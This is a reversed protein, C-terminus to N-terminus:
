QRAADPSAGMPPPAGAPWEEATTPQQSEHFAYGAMAGGVTGLVVFTPVLAVTAGGFVLAGTQGTAFPSGLSAVFLGTVAAGAALGGIITGGAAGVGVPITVTDDEAAACTGAALGAALPMLILAGLGGVVLSLGSSAGACAGGVALLSCCTVISALGGVAGALATDGLTLEDQPPLPAVPRTNPERVVPPPLPTSATPAPVELAPDPTAAPDEVGPTLMPPPAMPDQQLLSSVSLSLLLVSWM